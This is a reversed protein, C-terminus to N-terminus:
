DKQRARVTVEQSHLHNIADQSGREGAKDQTCKVGKPIPPNSVYFLPLKM